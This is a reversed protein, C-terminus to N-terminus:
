SETLQSVLDLDATSYTGYVGKPKDSKRYYREAIEQFALGRYLLNRLTTDAYRVEPYQERFQHFMLVKSDRRNGMNVPRTVYRLNGPEYHGDNNKRDIELNRHLGLNTMVWVAAETTTAFRFQIGRAGYRSYGDDKPNTCRQRAAELRKLLWKPAGCKQSCSQCGRSRGTRLSDYSIWKETRCQTCRVKVYRFGKRREFTRSVLEVLGFRHGEMEAALSGSWRPHQKGSQFKGDTKSGSKTIQQLQSDMM